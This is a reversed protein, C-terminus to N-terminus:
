YYLVVGHAVIDVAVVGGVGGGHTVAAVAAVACYWWWWWANRFRCSVPRFSRVRPARRQIVRRRQQRAAVASGGQVPEKLVRVVIGVAVDFLGVKQQRDHRFGAAVGGPQVGDKRLGPHVGARAQAADVLARQLGAQRAAPGGVGDGERGDARHGLTGGVIQRGVIKNGGHRALQLGDLKIRSRRSSFRGYSNRLFGNFQPAFVDREQLANGFEVFKQLRSPRAPGKDHGKRGPGQANGIHDQTTGQDEQSENPGDLTVM